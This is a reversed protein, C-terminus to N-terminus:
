CNITGIKFEFFFSHYSKYIYFHILSYYIYIFYILDYIVYAALTQHVLDLRKFSQSKLRFQHELQCLISPVNAISSELYSIQQLNNILNNTM